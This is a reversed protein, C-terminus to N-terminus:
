IQTQALFINKENGVIGTFQRWCLFCAVPALRWSSTLLMCAKLQPSGGTAILQVSAHLELLMYLNCGFIHMFLEMVM